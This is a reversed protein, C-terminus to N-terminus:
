ESYNQRCYTSTDDSLPQFHRTTGLLSYVHFQSALWLSSATITFSLDGRLNTASELPWVRMECQDRLNGVQVHASLNISHPCHKSNLPRHDCELYNYWAAARSRTVVAPSLLTNNGLGPHPIAEETSVRAVHPLQAHKGQRGLSTLIMIGLGLGAAGARARHQTLPQDIIHLTWCLRSIDLLLYNLSYMNTPTRIANVTFCFQLTDLM